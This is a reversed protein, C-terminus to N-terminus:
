FQEEKLTDPFEVRQGPHSEQSDWVQECNSFKNKLKMYKGEFDAM